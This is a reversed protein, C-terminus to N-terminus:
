QNNDIYDVVVQVICIIEVVEDFIIVGFKDELGMILEVIELSDVGFDEVFCVEFIVKGEDVGFKDVIVDKVDDFIVM